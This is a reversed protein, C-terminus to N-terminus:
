REERLGLKLSCAPWAEWGQLALLLEARHIQEERSAEHPMGTGGVMWWSEPLFQLGGYYGNGTNIHWDGSSECMALLDWVTEANQAQASTVERAPRPDALVEVGGVGSGLQAEIREAVDDPEAGREVAVLLSTSADELELLSGTHRNVIVDAVPPTGNSAFGAVRVEVADQGSGLHAYGGLPIALEEAREHTFAAEGEDVYGWLESADATPQPVLARFEAPDIIAVDLSEDGLDFRVRGTTIASVHLVGALSGIEEAMDIDAPDSLGDIRISPRVTEIPGFRAAPDRPTSAVAISSVHSDLLDSRSLRVETLGTTPEGRSARPPADESPGIAAAVIVPVALLAAAGVLLVRKRIM